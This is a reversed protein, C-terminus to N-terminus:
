RAESAAHVTGFQTHVRQHRTPDIVFDSQAADYEAAPVLWHSVELPADRRGGPTAMVGVFGVPVNSSWSGWAAIVIWEAVHARHFAAKDKAQSEGSQLVRGYLAEWLAPRWNRLINEASAVEDASFHAPYSLAVLSWDIDEEFWAGGAGLRSFERLPEPMGQVRQASLWFGGHSATELREIGISITRRDQSDGWPTHRSKM